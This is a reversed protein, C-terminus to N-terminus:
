NKILSLLINFSIGAEILLVITRIWNTKIFFAVKAEDYGTIAMDGQIRGSWAITVAIFVINLILLTLLTISSIGDPRIWFMIIGCLVMILFPIIAPIIAGRNNAAIFEKFSAKDVTPYIAFHQIQLTFMSGFNYFSLAIFSLLLTSSINGM